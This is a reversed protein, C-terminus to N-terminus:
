DAPSEPGGSFSARFDASKGEGKSTDYPMVIKSGAGAAAGTMVDDM